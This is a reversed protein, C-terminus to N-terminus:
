SKYTKWHAEQQTRWKKSIAGELVLDWGLTDQDRAVESKDARTTPAENQNWRMLGEIIDSHLRPDMGEKQM